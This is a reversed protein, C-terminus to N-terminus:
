QKKVKVYTINDKEEFNEIITDEMCGIHCLGKVEQSFSKDGCFPCNARFTTRVESKTTVWVDVLSKGCNSCKLINHGGDVLGVPVWEKKEVQCKIM